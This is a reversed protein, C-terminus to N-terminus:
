ALIVMVFLGAAMGLCRCLRTKEQLEGKRRAIADDAQELYFLLTREQMARDAYGLHDGLVRFQEMEGKKLPFDKPFQKMEETWVEAFSVSDQTELRKAVRCFFQGPEQFIGEREQLARTGVETLAEPLTANASLIQGKLHYVMQRLLLLLELQNQWNKAALFGGGILAGAMILIGIYRM